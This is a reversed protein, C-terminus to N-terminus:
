RLEFLVNGIEIEPSGEIHYAQPIGAALNSEKFDIFDDMSNWIYIGCYEGPRNLKVYYKQILGPLTRFDGARQKATQLLQDEPLVSKLKIIQVVNDEGTTKTASSTLFNYKAAEIIPTRDYYAYIGDIKKDDNFHLAWHMRVHAIENGFSLAASFYCINFVGTMGVHDIEQNVRM